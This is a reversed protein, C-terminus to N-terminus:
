NRARFSDYAYQAESETFGIDNIMWDRFMNEHNMLGSTPAHFEAFMLAKEYWDFNMEDIRRMVTSITEASHNGLELEPIIGNRGINGGEIIEILGVLAREAWDFDLLMAIAEDAEEYTFGGRNVIRAHLMMPSSVWSVNELENVAWEYAESIEDAIVESIDLDSEPEQTEAITVAASDLNANGDCGVMATMFLATIVAVIFIKKM